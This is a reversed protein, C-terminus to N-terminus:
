LNVAGTGAGTTGAAMGPMVLVELLQGSAVSDGLAIGYVPAANAAASGDTLAVWKAVTGNAGRKLKDGRAIVGASRVELTGHSNWLRVRIPRKSANNDAVSGDPNIAAVPANLNSNETVGIEADQVGAPVIYGGATLKVRVGNTIGSSLSPDSLFTYESFHSISM